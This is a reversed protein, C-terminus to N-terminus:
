LQAHAREEGTAPDPLDAAGDGDHPYREDLMALIKKYGFLYILIFLLTFNILQAILLPPNIGMSSLLEGM